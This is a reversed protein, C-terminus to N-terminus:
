LRIMSSWECTFIYTSDQRPLRPTSLLTRARALSRHLRGVHQPEDLAVEQLALRHLLHDGLGECANGVGGLVWVDGLCLGWVCGGAWLRMCQEQDIPDDADSQHSIPRNCRKFCSAPHNLNTARHPLHVLDPLAQPQHHAVARCVPQPLRVQLARPQALQAVSVQVRDVHALAGAKAIEHALEGLGLEEVALHAWSCTKAVDFM